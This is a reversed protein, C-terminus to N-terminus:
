PSATPAPSCSSRGRTRPSGSAASWGGRAPAPAGRSCPGDRLARVERGVGVAAVQLEGVIRHSRWLSIEFNEAAPRPRWPPTPRRARRGPRGGRGAATGPAASPPSSAARRGARGTGDRTAAAAPDVDAIAPSRVRSNVELMASRRSSWKSLGCSLPTRATLPTIPVQAPGREGPVAYTVTCWLTPSTPSPPRSPRTPTGPPLCPRPTRRAARPPEGTRRRPARRVGGTARM